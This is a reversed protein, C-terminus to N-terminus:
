FLAAIADAATRAQRICDPMSVGDYAAGALFLGPTRSLHEKIRGVRAAHGLTPQANANVHRYVAIVRANGLPGLLRSLEARAAGALVDDPARAVDIESRAGGLFARVLTAGRPARGAWKSSVWTAALLEGEGPATVFGSGELPQRLEREDLALFVTATSVYRIAALEAALGASPVLKSAVHAPTALLVADVELREAGARLSWARGDDTRGLDDVATGLRVDGPELADALARIMTGMGERFSVFPSDASEPEGKGLWARAERLRGGPTDRRSREAPGLQPQIMGRIVSGYRAELEVLHPFTARISLDEAAGGYISALLGDGVARAAEAGFRREIFGAISEDGTAGEVRGFGRPLILESLMRLKGPLSMFGAKLFPLPRTPVGLTLGEPMRELRGSRVLYPRRGSPQTSIFESGIGLEKCLELGWPKTRLFSDPGADCLFGDKRETRVNGGLRSRSEFLLVRARPCRTRLFYAAALGTIGGGVVAVAPSRAAPLM